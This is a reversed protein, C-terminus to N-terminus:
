IGKRVSTTPPVKTGDTYNLYFGDKLKLKSDAFVAEKGKLENFTFYGYYKNGRDPEEIVKGSDDTFLVRFGTQEDGLINVTVNTPKPTEPAKTVPNEAKTESNGEAVQKNQVTTEEPKASSDANLNAKKQETSEVGDAVDSFGYLRKMVLKSTTTEKGEADVSKNTEVGFTSGMSEVFKLTISANIITPLKYGITEIDWPTNEDVSYSLSDVFCEKNKYWDGITVKLFPPTIYVGNSGQPYALSTLFNLREWAAKHENKNLSYIKFEFQVSREVGDYTYFSFPNGITKQSQWSPSVSESLGSLTARFNVATKKALSFFKLTIFDYDELKTGDALQIDAGDESSYPVKSNLFDSKTKFGIKDLNPSSKYNDSQTYRQKEVKELSIEGKAALGFTALTDAVRQLSEEYVSTLDNRQTVDENKADVTNSYKTTENYQVGNSSALNVGGEKRSGFLKKRVADKVGGIANGLLQNGIQNPTGSVGKALFKGLINGAGDKKIKALTEPLETVNGKKFDDNLKIKTPILKDPLDVGLKTLLGKGKEEVKNLFNGIIGNSQEDGGVADNKMSDLMNTTRKLLRPYQTGYLIPESLGRIIRVGTVEEELRTEKLRSSLNRRAIKALKFSTNNLIANTSTIQIDKSNRVEYVEEATKNGFSQYPQNKFLELITPM